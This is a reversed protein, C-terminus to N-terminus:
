IFDWQTMSDIANYLFSIDTKCALRINEINNESQLFELLFNRYFFCVETMKVIALTEVVLINKLIRIIGKSQWASSMYYNYDDVM